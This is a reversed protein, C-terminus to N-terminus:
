AQAKGPALGTVAALERSALLYARAAINASREMADEYSEDPERPRKVDVELSVGQTSKTVKVDVAGLSTQRVETLTAPPGEVDCVSELAAQIRGSIREATAETATGSLNLLELVELACAVATVRLTSM